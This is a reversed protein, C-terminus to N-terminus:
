KSSLVSEMQPLEEMGRLVGIEEVPVDIPKDISMVRHLGFSVTGNEHVFRIEGSDADIEGKALEHVLNEAASRRARYVLDIASLAPELEANLEDNGTVKAILPVEERWRLPAVVSSGGDLWYRITQPDRRLGSQSLRAQLSHLDLQNNRAFVRLAHQWLSSLRRTEKPKELYKDATVDILDRDTTRSLALIHGPQIQDCDLYLLSEAHGGLREEAEGDLDGAEELLGSLCIVRGKPPLLIHMGPEEFVVLRAKATERGSQTAGVSSRITDVIRNELFETDSIEEEQFVESSNELVTPFDVSPTSRVGSGLDPFKTSLRDLLKLNTKELVREWRRHVSTARELWSREFEFMVIEVHEALHCAQLARMTSNQLWGPVILTAVPGVRELKNMTLWTVRGLIPDSKTRERYRDAEPESNCLLAIESHDFASIVSRIAEEKGISPFGTESLENLLDYLDAIKPEYARLSSCRNRLSEVNGVLSAAELEDPEMVMLRSNRLLTSLLIAVLEISPDDRHDDGWLENLIRYLDELFPNKVRTVNRTGCLHRRQRLVYRELENHDTTPLYPNSSPLEVDTGSIYWPEFGEAILQREAERHGLSALCIITVKEELGAVKLADHFALAEAAGDAVVFKPVLGEPPDTVIDVLTPIDSCSWILPRDTRSRELDVVRGASTIYRMGVLEPITSGLPLIASLFEDLKRRRTLLVTTSTLDSLRVETEVFHELSNPRRDRLWEQIEDGKSLYKHERGAPRLLPLLESPISIKGEKAVGISEFTAEGHSIHGQYIARFEHESDGFYVPTGPELEVTGKNRHDADSKLRTLALAFAALISMPGVEPLILIRKTPTDDASELAAGLVFQIFLGPRLMQKDNGFVLADLLPWEGLFQELIPLWETFGQTKAYTEEVVWIDDILGLLGITDPVVDDDVSLYKLAAYSAEAHDAFREVEAILADIKEAINPHYARSSALNLLDRKAQISEFLEEVNQRGEAAYSALRARILEMEDRALFDHCVSPGYRSVLLSTTDDLVWNLDTTIKEWDTSGEQALDQAAAVTQGLYLIARGAAIASEPDDNVHQRFQSALWIWDRTQYYPFGDLEHLHTLSESVSTLFNDPAALQDRAVPELNKLCRALVEIRSATPYWM